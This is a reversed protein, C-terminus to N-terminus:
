GKFYLFCIKLIPDAIELLRGRVFMNVLKEEYYTDKLTSKKLAVM